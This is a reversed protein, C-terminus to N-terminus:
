PTKSWAHLTLRIGARPNNQRCRACPIKNSIAVPWRPSEVPGFHGAKRVDDDDSPTPFKAITVPNDPRRINAM